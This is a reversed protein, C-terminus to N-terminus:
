LGKSYMDEIERDLDILVRFINSYQLTTYNEKLKMVFKLMYRKYTYALYMEEKYDSTMMLTYEMINNSHVRNSSESFSKYDEVSGINNCLKKFTINEAFDFKKFAWYYNSNLFRDLKDTKTGSLPFELDFFTIIDNRVEEYEKEVKEIEEDTLNSKLTDSSMVHKYKSVSVGKFFDSIIEVNNILFTLIVFNEVIRRISFHASDFQSLIINNLLEDFFHASIAFIYGLVNEKSNPAIKIGKQMDGYENYLDIYKNRCEIMNDYHKFIDLSFKERLSENLYKYYDEMHKGM